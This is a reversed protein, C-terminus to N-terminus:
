EKRLKGRLETLAEVLADIQYPAFVQGPGVWGAQTVEVVNRNNVERVSVVVDGKHATFPVDASDFDADKRLEGEDRKVADLAAGVPPATDVFPDGKLKEEVVTQTAGVSREAAAAAAVSPAPVSDHDKGEEAKAADAQADRIEGESLTPAEPLTEGEGKSGVGTPKADNKTAAAKATSM